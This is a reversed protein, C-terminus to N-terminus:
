LVYIIIGTIIILMAAIKRLSLSEKLFVRSLIFVFIYNTTEVVPIFSVPVKRLAFVDIFVGLCFLTYATIVLPNLYERLLTAYTKLASKKLFLQSIAGIFSSLVILLSYLVTENM